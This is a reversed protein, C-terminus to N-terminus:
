EIIYKHKHLNNRDGCVTCVFLPFVLLTSGLAANIQTKVTQWLLQKGTDLFFLTLSQNIIYIYLISPSHRRINLKGPLAEFFSTSLALSASRNLM